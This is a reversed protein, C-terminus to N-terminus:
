LKQSHGQEGRDLSLSICSQSPNSSHLVTRASESGSLAVAELNNHFSATIALTFRFAGYDSYQVAPLNKESAAELAM